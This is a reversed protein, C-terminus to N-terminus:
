EPNTHAERCEANCCFLGGVKYVQDSHMGQVEKSQEIISGCFRCVLVTRAENDTVRRAGLWPDGSPLPYNPWGRASWVDQRHCFAALPWMMRQKPTYDDLEGEVYKMANLQQPNLILGYKAITENRNEARAQKDQMGPITELAGTEQNIQYRWPKEIDHLFLVVLAESLTFTLPRLSNLMKYDEIALNMVEAVHDLYGGQWNQHNNSSGSSQLFLELNDILMQRVIDRQNKDILDIAQDLSCQISPM